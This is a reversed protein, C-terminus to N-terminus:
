SKVVSAPNEISTKYVKWGVCLIITLILSLLIVAYIWANISTQVVYDELWRKMVLYGAPFAIVAGIVLLTIYEKFFIDLIDKVTAGNIKRIAIEKRREECTLSVLSVFGFVCIIICILSVSTLIKLLTNESKLFKDYEKETSSLEYENINPYNEKILRKIKDTCTKWTGDDCKFLVTQRSESKLSYFLPKASMIPSFSYINKLVGKVTHSGFKKGTPNQWGFMKAASENILVQNKNDDDRLMEGEALNLEYFAVFNETIEWNVVLIDGADKPKDDWRNIHMGKEMNVPILPALGSVTENIEPIQKIHNELVSIDTKETEGSIVVSGRNKFAFGLDTNHLYYMQKIIVITCFAFGISIILQVVISMKRFLNKNTRAIVANLTRRRFIMLVLLFTLLSIAILAVIYVISELYISSLELKIESLKQFSPFAINIIFLGLLLAIILSIIFEVSLLAFLSRGSAGFVMRLALERQRIRFRSIFLTLYNFLTCLIVLSGALVFIVIHQFKIDRRMNPDKYYVSTLPTLTIKEVFFNFWAGSKKIEHEYLKKKFAEVDVGPVLRILTHENSPWDWYDSKFIGTLIDFPYNSRKPLGSVVACIIRDVGDDETVIKGVPSENGFLQRAKEQTIATNVNSMKITYNSSEGAVNLKFKLFDMSGEIVKVDFFSLFASDIRLEDVGSKVGDITIETNHLDSITTANSVEPFTEKLYEALLHPTRRSSGFQGFSDPVYICFIHGADKHFDDYSMEYRIWLMALAFCTFGVALGIVSILTQNKYKWLNRFAVKFYHKVM